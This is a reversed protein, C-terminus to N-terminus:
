AGDDHRSRRGAILAAMPVVIAILLWSVPPVLVYVFAPQSSPPRVAHNGYIALSAVTLVLMVGYLTARTLVSWRTSVM